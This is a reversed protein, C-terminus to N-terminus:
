RHFFITLPKFKKGDNFYELGTRTSLLMAGFIFIIHPILFYVPVDGKFRIVVGGEEPLSIVANDKQLIIKYILKGAPPQHTLSAILRYDKRVMEVPTWEDETKYRKWLLKGIIATDSVKIEVPHDGEGGHSRDLKYEILEKDVKIEGSIPYTPGTIRQYVATFITLVFAAIWLLISKKM